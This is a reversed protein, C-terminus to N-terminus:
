IRCIKGFFLSFLDDILYIAKVHWKDKRSLIRRVKIFRAGINKAFLGDTLFKDGIVLLPLNEGNDIFKLIGSSPKKYPSEVCGVGAEVTIKELRKCVNKNSCFYIKNKQKLKDIKKIVGPALEVGGDEMVTGDVDLLILYGALDQCDMEIFYKINMSM